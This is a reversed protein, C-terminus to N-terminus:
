ENSHGKSMITSLLRPRHPQGLRILKGSHSSDPFSPGRRFDFMCLKPFPTLDCGSSQRGRPLNDQFVTKPFAPQSEGFKYTNQAEMSPVSMACYLIRSFIPSPPM